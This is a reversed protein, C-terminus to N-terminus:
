PHDKLHTALLHLLGPDNPDDPDGFVARDLREDRKARANAWRWLAIVGGIAASLAIAISAFLGWLNAEGNSVVATGIIAPMATAVGGLIIGATVFEGSDRKMHSM